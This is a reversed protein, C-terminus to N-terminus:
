RRGGSLSKLYDDLSMRPAPLATEQVQPPPTSVARVEIRGITVKITPASQMSPERKEASPRFSLGTDRRAARGAPRAGRSEGSDYVPSIAGDPPEIEAPAPLSQRRPQQKLEGPKIDYQKGDADRRTVQRVEVPRVAQHNEIQQGFSNQAPTGPHKLTELSSSHPIFSSDIDESRNEDKMRGGEDKGFVEADRSVPERSEARYKAAGLEYAPSPEDPERSFSAAERRARTEPRLHTIRDPLISDQAEAESYSRRGSPLNTATPLPTESERDTVSPARSDADRDHTRATIVADAHTQIVVGEGTESSAPLADEANAQVPTQVSGAGRKVAEPRRMVEEVQTSHTELRKHRIESVQEVSPAATRPPMVPSLTDVAQEYGAPYPGARADDATAAPAFIEAGPGYQPAIVPEVVPSQGRVRDALRGFFDTM